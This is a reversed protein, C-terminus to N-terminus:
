RAVGGIDDLRETCSYPYQQGGPFTLICAATGDAQTFSVVAITGTADEKQTRIQCTSQDSGDPLSIRECPSVEPGLSAITAVQDEGVACMSGEPLWGNDACPVLGSDNAQSGPGVFLLFATLVTGIILAFRFARVWQNRQLPEVVEQGIAM